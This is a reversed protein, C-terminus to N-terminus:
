KDTESNENKEKREIACSQILRTLKTELSSIKLSLLFLKVLLLFIIVTFILNAPSEINLIHAAAYIIQPFVSILLLMLCFFIWYLTDAVAFQSKRIKGFVFVATILSVALLTIRLIIPM